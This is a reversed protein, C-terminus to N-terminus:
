RAPNVRGDALEIEGQALLSELEYVVMGAKAADAAAARLAALAPDVEGVAARTRAGVIAAEQVARFDGKALGAAETAAKRAEDKKGRDLFSLALLSLARSRFAPLGAGAAVAEAERARREAEASKGTRLELEGLALLAEALTEPSKPPSGPTPQESRLALEYHQRATYNNGTAALTMRGIDVNVYAAMEAAGEAEHAKLAEREIELANQFRGEMAEIEGLSSLAIGYFARQNLKSFVARAAEYRGRAATLQGALHLQVGEIYAAMGQSVSFPSTALLKAAEESRKRAGAEDGKRLLVASWGFLVEVKQIADGLAEYRQFAEAYLEGATALDLNSYLYARTQISQAVGLLDGTREFGKRALGIQEEAAPVDGTHLLVESLLFRAEAEGWVSGIAQAKSVARELSARARTYSQQFQLALGEERDLWPNAEAGPLARLEACLRLGDAAAGAKVLEEAALLGYVVDDPFFERFLAEASRAVGARDTAVRKELLEFRREDEASLAAPTGKAALRRAAALAAGAEAPRGLALETRALDVLVWPHPARQAAQSLLDAAGRQDWRRARELGQFYLKATEPDAPFLTRYHRADELSLPAAGLRRRLSKEPSSEGARDALDLWATAEGTESAQGAKRGQADYLVLDLRVASTGGVPAYSGSVIWDIGLLRRLRALDAAPVEPRTPLLLDSEGLVVGERDAVRVAGGAGFKASVAEALAGGLWDLDRNTSGNAFDLVAVSPRPLPVKAKWPSAAVAFPHRRASAARFARWGYVGSAVVAAGALGLAAFRLLRRWPIFRRPAVPKPLGGPEVTAARIGEVLRYMAERTIGKQRLDIWSLRELFPPPEFDVPVGPLIVPIIRTK